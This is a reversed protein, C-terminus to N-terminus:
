KKKKNVYKLLKEAKEFDPAMELVEHMVKKTKQINGMEFYVRGLNFMLTPNDPFVKLCKKYQVISEEYSGIRRLHMAYTNFTSVSEPIPDVTQQLLKGAKEVKGKSLLLKGMKVLNLDTPNTQVVYDFVDNAEDDMGLELYVNGVDIKRDLNLPNMESAKELHKLAEDNSGEAMCIRGYLNLIKSSPKNALLPKLYKKANSYDDKYFLCECVIYLIEPHNSEKMFEQALSLSKNYKKLLQYRTLINIKQQLKSQNAKQNKIKEIAATIENLTFPKFQFGDVCEEMAYAFKAMSTEDSIMLIPMESIKPNTRIIKLLEIGTMNPMNWDTIVFEVENKALFELALKASSVMEIENYGNEKLMNRLSRRIPEQDDVILFEVPKRFLTSM